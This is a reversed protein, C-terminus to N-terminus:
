LGLAEMERRIIAGLGRPAVERQYMTHRQDNGAETAADNCRWLAAEVRLKRKRAEYLREMATAQDM